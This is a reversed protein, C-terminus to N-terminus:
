KFIFYFIMAWVGFFFLGPYIVTHLHQKATKKIFALYAVYLVFAAFLVIPIILRM